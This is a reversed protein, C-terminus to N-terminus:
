MSEEYVFDLLLRILAGSGALHSFRPHSKLWGDIKGTLCDAGKRGDVGLTAYDSLFDDVATEPTHGKRNLFSQAATGWDRMGLDRTTEETGQNALCVLGWGALHPGAESFVEGLTVGSGLPLSCSIFMLALVALLLRPKLM